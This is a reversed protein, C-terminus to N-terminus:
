GYWPRASALGAEPAASRTLGGPTAEITPGLKLRERVKRCLTGLAPLRLGHRARHAPPPPLCAVVQVQEQESGAGGPENVADQRGLRCWTAREARFFSPEPIVLLDAVHPARRLLVLRRIFGVGVPLQRGHSFRSGYRALGNGANDHEEEPHDDGYHCDDHQRENDVPSSAAYEVQPESV